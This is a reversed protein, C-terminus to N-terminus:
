SRDGSRLESARLGLSASNTVKVCVGYLTQRTAERFPGWEPTKFSLFVREDERWEGVAMGTVPPSPSEGDDQEDPSEELAELECRTWCGRCFAGSAQGRRWPLPQPGDM